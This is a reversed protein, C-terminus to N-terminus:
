WEERWEKKRSHLYRRERWIMHQQIDLLEEESVINTRCYYYSGVSLDPDYAYWMDCENILRIYAM